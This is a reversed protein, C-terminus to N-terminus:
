IGCKIHQTQEFSKGRFLMSNPEWDRLNIWLFKNSLFSAASQHNTLVGVMPRTAHVTICANKVMYPM